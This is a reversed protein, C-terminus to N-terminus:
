ITMRTENFLTKRAGRPGIVYMRHYESVKSTYNGYVEPGKMVLYIRAPQKRKRYNNSSDDIDHIRAKFPRSTHRFITAITKLQEKTM